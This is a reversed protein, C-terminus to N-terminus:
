EYLNINKSATTGTAPTGGGSGSVSSGSSGSTTIPTPGYIKECPSGAWPGTGVGVVQCTGSSTPKVDSIGYQPAEGLNPDFVAPGVVATGGGLSIGTTSGGGGGGGGTVTGGGGGSTTKGPDVTQIALANISLTLTFLILLYKM